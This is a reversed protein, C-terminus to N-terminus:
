EVPIKAILLTQSQSWLTQIIKCSDGLLAPISGTRQPPFNGLFLALIQWTTAVDM